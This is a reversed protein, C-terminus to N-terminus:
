PRLPASGARAATSARKNEPEHTRPLVIEFVSGGGDRNRAIITGGYSGIIQRAIALGLGVHERREEGPRYSFFRDFIRSVHADPIGPGRDAVTIRVQGPPSDVEVEIPSNEPSLSAANSLVNELAQSLREHGGRVLVEGDSRLTIATPQRSALRITEIAEQLLDVVGVTKLPEHELQGDVRAMERVGSVLRDLREVDKRMLELFREREAATASEGITEAATRISALPNRFEHAVDAAFSELRAIHDALRRTLVELSRALDGIEDRRAAGPFAANLPVQRDALASAQRRLQKLPRVITAAVVATLVAAVAMSQLVIEFVRLRIQYLTQLIRFTSQSVVVVGITRGDHRVPVASVLTLSRQGPTRYTAAGYHGRLAQQV